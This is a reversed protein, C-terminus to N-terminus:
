IGNLGEIQQELCAPPDAKYVHVNLRGAHTGLEIM